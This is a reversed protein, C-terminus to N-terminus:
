NSPLLKLQICLRSGSKQIVAAKYEGNRNGYSHPELSINGNSTIHLEHGLLAVQIGNEIISIDSTDSGNTDLLPVTYYITNTLPDMLSVECTVGSQDITYLECVGTCGNFISDKGDWENGCGGDKRSNCGSYTISFAVCNPTETIIDFTSWLGESLESLYQIGGNSTQWGPSYCLNRSQNLVSQAVVYKPTKTLPVSLGLEVPVGTKHLRGLGTSDYHFDASTDIEVTYGGCNAFVKHFHPPTEFVYGGLEAPCACEEITDDAFLLAPYIFCGMTAMYKDYYGYDETGIKSEIPYFNKIHHPTDVDKIWRIISQAAMHAGRKFMGATKLDGLNKYRLAEYEFCSALLAENFQYQNSRGGYPLVFASSQMFLSMLAGNKMHEDLLASHNGSYGQGLMLQLQVRTTIDYLIPEGPDRYMGNKDFRALQSPWHLSLYEDIDFIDPNVLGEQNCLHVGAMNYILINHLEQQPRAKLTYSFVRYPDLQRLDDAWQALKQTPATNKMARYVLIIEKLSFDHRLNGIRCDKSFDRCCVDMMGEWLPYLDTKRGNAILIGLISTIRFYAHPDDVGNAQYEGLRKHLIDIPYASLAIEMIDLYLGCTVGSPIFDDPPAAAKIYEQMKQLTISM